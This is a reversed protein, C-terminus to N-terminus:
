RGHSYGRLQDIAKIIDDRLQTSSPDVNLKLAIDSLDQQYKETQSVEWIYQAINRLCGSLYRFHKSWMEDFTMCISIPNTLM